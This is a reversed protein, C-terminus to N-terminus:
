AGICVEERRSASKRHGQGHGLLAKKRNRKMGTMLLCSLMKRALWKPFYTPFVQRRCHAVDHLAVHVARVRRRLSLRRKSSRRWWQRVTM